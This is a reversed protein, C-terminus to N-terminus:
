FNISEWVSSVFSIAFMVIGATDERIWPTLHTFSLPLTNPHVLASLMVYFAGYLSYIRVAEVFKKNWLLELLLKIIKNGM